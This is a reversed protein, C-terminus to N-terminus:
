VRPIVAVGDPMVTVSPHEVGLIGKATRLAEEMSPAYILHLAEVMERPADSVLIVRNKLLIRCFIQSQWQDPITEDARRALIEKLIKGTDPEEAFTNFFASGGHGDNCRAAIIIVGGERCVSSAATMGKVCQYINQDLPFGGNTTIVIDSPEARSCCLNSLIEVGAGHASTVDGAVAGIVEKKSNIVVNLIFRLNSAGAAFMMDQHIPNCDLSGMVSHPNEINSACHNYMISSRSAIGPLISKRGGSFGAFFHPEIFGEAILLDADCALRNLEIRNGGPSTGVYTFPGKDCDHVLITEREAIKEGFREKIEGRTMARHCGTAILITIRADPSGRRVAQLLLPMTIRSPMPRTHDSTIIVVTEAGRALDELEPSDHPHRLASRVIEAEPKEPPFDSLGSEIVSRLEGAPIKVTIQGNGYPLSIQKDM